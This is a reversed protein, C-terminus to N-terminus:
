LETEAYSEMRVEGTATDVTTIAELKRNRTQAKGVVTIKHKGSGACTPPPLDKCVAVNVSNNGINITYLSSTFTKDRVIKILADQVGAQAAFLAQASLREGFESTVFLFIGVTAAIVIETVLGGLLLITPLAVIGKKM